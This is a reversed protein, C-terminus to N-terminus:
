GNYPEARQILAELDPEKPDQPAGPHIIRVPCNEAAKVIDAFPGAKSDAVFAQKDANYQFIKDNIQLCANCSTCLPTDIYAEGLSLEIVEEEIDQEEEAVPEPEPPAPPTEEKQVEQKPPATLVTTDLDLLSSALQELATDAASEQLAELEKQHQDQLQQIEEAYKAELSEQLDRTAAEVHYSHIGANEQLFHWFDLRDGTAQALPLAVAARSLLGERDVMWIYPTKAMQNQPSLELFQALPVLHDDWLSPPVPLLWSQYIPLLVAADAFTFAVEMTQLEGESTEVQLSHVPWDTAPEPNHNIAFRSGWRPGHNGDYTFGPFIRGEVAASTQIFLEDPSSQPTQLALLHLFSPLTSQIGMQLGSVFDLPNALTGQWVFVSRHALSLAGLEQRFIGPDAHGSPHTRLAIIHVPRGSALLQSYQHLSEYLTEEAALLIIPPCAALEKTSFARWDFHAFFDAHLDPDYRDDLELRALRIAAFLRAANLMAGDFHARLNNISNGEEWPSAVMNPFTSQWDLDLSHLPQDILVTAPAAWMSSAATELTELLKEIRQRREPPMADEEGSPLVAALEDFKLFRDAFSLTEQLQDESHAEPDKAKEVALLETLRRSLQKVEQQAEQMAVPHFTRLWQGLLHFPSLPLFPILVGTAPLAKRLAEIDQLFATQEDGQIGLESVLDDLAETLVARAQYPIDAFSVKKRIIRELRPINDKLIRASKEEPAVQGIAEKLLTPLGVGEPQGIADDMWLPFDTPLQNLQRYGQLLAPFHGELGGGAGTRYFARLIQQFSRREAEPALPVEPLTLRPHKVAVSAEKTTGPDSTIGLGLLHSKDERFLGTLPSYTQEKESM